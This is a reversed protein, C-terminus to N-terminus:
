RYQTWISQINVQTNYPQVKNIWEKTKKKTKTKQMQSDAGINSELWLGNLSQNISSILKNFFAAGTHTLQIHDM